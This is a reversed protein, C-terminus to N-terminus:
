WTRRSRRSWAGLALAPLALVGILILLGSGDRKGVQDPPTAQSARIQRGVIEFGPSPELADTPPASWAVVDTPRSPQSGTGTASSSQPASSTGEAEGTASRDTAVSGPGAGTISESRAADDDLIHVIAYDCFGNNLCSARDTPPPSDMEPYGDLWLMVGFHETEEGVNDRVLRITVAPVQDTQGAPAPWSGSTGIFDDGAEATGDETQWNARHTPDLHATFRLTISEERESVGFEDPQNDPGPGTNEDGVWEAHGALAPAAIAVVVLVAAVAVVGARGTRHWM